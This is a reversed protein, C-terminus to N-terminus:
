SISNAQCIQEAKLLFSLITLAMHCLVSAKTVLYVCFNLLITYHFGSTVSVGPEEPFTNLTPFLFCFCIFLGDFGYGM